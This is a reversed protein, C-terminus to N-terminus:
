DDERIQKILEVVCQGFSETGKSLGMNGCITPVYEGNMFYGSEKTGDAYTYTGQGHRKGDKFEGVYKDGAWESDKGWTFTGQGHMKNEKHEGVFKNGTVTTATGQGHMKGEKYEGVYKNGTSTTFTGQGHKKGEKYEGLYKYENTTYTGQGHMNNDKWEGVYISGDDTTITGFCNHYRKLQDSPCNPLSSAMANGAFLILIIFLLKKM